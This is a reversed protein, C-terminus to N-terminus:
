CITFTLRSNTLAMSFFLLAILLRTTRYPLCTCSNSDIFIAALSQSYSLPGKVFSTVDSPKATLCTFLKLGMLNNLILRVPNSCQDTGHFNWNSLANVRHGSVDFGAFIVTNSLNAFILGIVPVRCLTHKKRGLIGVLFKRSCFKICICRCDIEHM